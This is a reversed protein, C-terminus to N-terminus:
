SVLVSVKSKGGGRGSWWEFDGFKSLFLVKM